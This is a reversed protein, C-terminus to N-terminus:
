SLGKEMDNYAMCYEVELNEEDVIDYGNEQCYAEAFAVFEKTDVGGRWYQDDVIDSLSGIDVLEQILDQATIKNTM